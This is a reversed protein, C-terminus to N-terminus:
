RPKSSLLFPRPTATSRRYQQGAIASHEACYVKGNSPAGCYKKDPADQDDWLPWHCTRTTLDMLGCPESTALEQPKTEQDRMEYEPAFAAYTRYIVLRPRERKPKAYPLVYPQGNVRKGLRHLKGIIANKTAGLSEVMQRTTEGADLLRLLEEVKEETWQSKKLLTTIIETM